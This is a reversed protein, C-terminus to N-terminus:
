DSRKRDGADTATLDKREPQPQAADRSLEALWRAVTEESAATTALAALLLELLERATAPRADPRLALARVFLADLAVPLDPRRLTVPVPPRDEPGEPYARGLTLLEYITAASSYIDSRLDVTEGAAQEPSM